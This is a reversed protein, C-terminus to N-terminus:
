QNSFQIQNGVHHHSGRHNHGNSHHHGNATIGFFSIPDRVVGEHDGDDSQADYHSLFSSTNSEVDFFNHDSAHAALADPKSRFCGCINDFSFCGTRKEKVVPASTKKIPKAYMVPKTM